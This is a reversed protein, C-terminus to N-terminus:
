SFSVFKSSKKETIANLKMKLNMKLFILTNNAGVNDGEVGKIERKTQMQKRPQQAARLCATEKRSFLESHRATAYSPVVHPCFHGEKGEKKPICVSPEERIM